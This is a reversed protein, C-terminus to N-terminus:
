FSVFESLFGNKNQALLYECRRLQMRQNKEVVIHFMFLIRKVILM